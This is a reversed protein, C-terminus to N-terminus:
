ENSAVKAVPTQPKGINLEVDFEITPGSPSQGSQTSRLAVNAIGPSKELDRVFDFVGAELFSSGKLELNKLESLKLSSLWVDSPMCHAINRLQTTTTANVFHSALLQLQALKVRNAGSRLELERAEAKVGALSDLELQLRNNESSQYYNGLWAGAALLLVGALPALSRILIPRLPERSLAAIHEMFNPADYEDPSLYTGLLAGLGPVLNPDTTEQSFIWTAQIDAPEFVHPEFGPVKELAQVARLVNERNGSLYFQQLKPPTKRLLRGLHRELRSLHTKLVEVLEKADHCSGPRYELLLRGNHSVGIEVSDQDLHILVSPLDPVNKLRGLARSNAVLAPEISELRMGAQDCALQLTDLTKVNAIASVAYTHRADIPKSNSVAVKEGTGLLLYLQSRQKLLQLEARVEETPGLLAKSVCYKGSLVIHIECGTLSHKEAISRLASSLDALGEPTHLSQSDIKWRQTFAEVQDSEGTPSRHVIVSRLDSDTLEIVALRNESHKRRERARRRERPLRRESEKRRDAM